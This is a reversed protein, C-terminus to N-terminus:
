ARGCLEAPTFGRLRVDIEVGITSLAENVQQRELMWGTWAALLCHRLQESDLESSELEIQRLKFQAELALRKNFEPPKM